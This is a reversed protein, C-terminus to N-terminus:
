LYAITYLYNKRISYNHNSFITSYFLTWGDHSMVSARQRSQSQTGTAASLDEDRMAIGRTWAIHTIHINNRAGYYVYANFTYLIYLYQRIYVIM